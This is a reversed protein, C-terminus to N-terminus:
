FGNKIFVQFLPPTEWLQAKRWRQYSQKCGLPIKKLHDNGNNDNESM